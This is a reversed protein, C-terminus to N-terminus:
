NALLCYKIILQYKGHDNDSAMMEEDEEDTYNTFNTWKALRNVLLELNSLRHIFELEM